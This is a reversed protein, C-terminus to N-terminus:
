DHGSAIGEHGHAIGRPKTSPTQSPPRSSPGGHRAADASLVGFDCPAYGPRYTLVIKAAHRHLVGDPRPWGGCGKESVRKTAPRKARTGQGGQWGFTDIAHAPLHTTVARGATWVHVDQATDTPNMVITVIRGDPNRFATALLKDQTSTCAIRRAGPRMFRSFQGIYYYAPTFDLKGTHTDAIVPAYCYNGVHNPGGQEDLLVNWDTWGCTWTNFDAIMNRAYGEGRDWDDVHKPDFPGDCGESFFVAKNPFADHLQALTNDNDGVYWHFATGWVYRAAQADSLVTSGRQYALGRNHDWVMLHIRHLGAKWLAPGLFNKVFDREETATYVCSEWSQSAMPENQVTLGWLRIGQRAYAQIFRVYYQAWTADFQPLLKGGHLMDHNSKMWAPPSWPSAFLRLAPQVQLAAKIFPIKYRLDPAVSFSALSTDGDKVYTYSSSSFDCSNLNTRGLTYGIGQDPDYYATILQQQAAKPLKAWTEAAADTLAGGIGVMTQFTHDPDVMVTWSGEDPQPLSRFQLPPKPALRDGNDRATQYVVVSSQAYAPVGLLLLLLLLRRIM